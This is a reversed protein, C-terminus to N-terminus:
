QLQGYMLQRTRYGEAPVGVRVRAGEATPIGLEGTVLLRVQHSHGARVAEWTRDLEVATRLASLDSESFGLATQLAFFVPHDKSPWAERRDITKTLSLKDAAQLAQIAEILEASTSYDIDMVTGDPEGLSMCYGGDVAFVFATFDFTDM